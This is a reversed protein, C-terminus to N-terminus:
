TTKILNNKIFNETASSASQTESNENAPEKIPRTTIKTLAYGNNVIPFTETLINYNM